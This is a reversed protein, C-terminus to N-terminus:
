EWLFRKIYEFKSIYPNKETILNQKHNVEFGCCDKVNKASKFAMFYKFAQGREKTEIMNYITKYGDTIETHITYIDPNEITNTMEIYITRWAKEYDIDITLKHLM